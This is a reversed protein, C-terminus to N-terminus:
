WTESEKQVEDHDLTKYDTIDEEAKLLANNYQKKTFAKGDASFGVTENENYSKVLASVVNLLREDASKIAKILKNRLELTEM